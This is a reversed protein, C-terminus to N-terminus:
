SSHACTACHLSLRADLVRADEVQGGYTCCAGVLVPRARRLTETERLGPIRSM